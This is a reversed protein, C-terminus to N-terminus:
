ITFQQIWILSNWNNTCGSVIHSSYSTLGNQHSYKYILIIINSSYFINVPIRPPTCIDIYHVELQSLSNRKLKCSWIPFVEKVCKGKSIWNTVMEHVWWITFGITVEQSYSTIHGSLSGYQYLLTLWITNQNCITFKCTKHIFSPTCLTIWEMRSMYHHSCGVCSSNFKNVRSKPTRSMLNSNQISIWM